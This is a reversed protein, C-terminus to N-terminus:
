WPLVVVLQIKSESEFDIIRNIKARKFIDVNVLFACKGERPDRRIGIQQWSDPADLDGYGPDSFKINQDCLKKLDDLRFFKAETRIQEIEYHSMSAFSSLDGDRM